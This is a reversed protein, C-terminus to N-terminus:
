GARWARAETFNLKDAWVTLLRYFTYLVLLLVLLGVLVEDTHGDRVGARGAPGEAEPCRAM